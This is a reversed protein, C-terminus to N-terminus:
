RCWISRSDLPSSPVGLTTGGETEAGAGRVASEGSVRGVLPRPAADGRTGRRRGTFAGGRLLLRRCPRELWARSLWALSLLLAWFVACAVPQPIASLAARHQTYLRVLIHHILYVGYSVDGLLVLMPTALVRSVLGHDLAMVVILV